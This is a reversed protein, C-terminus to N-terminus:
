IGFWDVLADLTSDEFEVEPMRGALLARVQSATRTDVPIRVYPNFSTNKKFIIEDLRGPRDHLSFETFDDLHFVRTGTVVVSESVEFDMINPKRNAFFVIMAGAILVFIGFFFNKQWLAVGLFVAAVIGVVVYWLFSKERFEYEAARWSISKPNKEAM